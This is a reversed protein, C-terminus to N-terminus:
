NIRMNQQHRPAISNYTNAIWASHGGIKQIRFHEEFSSYTPLLSDYPYIEMQIGKKALNAANLSNQYELREVSEVYADKSIKGQSALFDLHNLKSSILANQLEFLVSGIMEGQSRYSTHNIFITRHDPDWCAGFQQAVSMSGVALKIPGEKQITEILSRAEPLKQITLLTQQLQPDCHISTKQQSNQQDASLSTLHSTLIISCITVLILKFM